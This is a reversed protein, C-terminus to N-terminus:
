SPQPPNRKVANKAKKVAEKIKERPIGGECPPELVVREQPKRYNWWAFPSLLGLLSRM